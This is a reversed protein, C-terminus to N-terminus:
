LARHSGNAFTATQPTADGAQSEPPPTGSKPSGVNRVASESLDNKPVNIGGNLEATTSRRMPTEGHM